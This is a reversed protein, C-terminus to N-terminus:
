ALYRRVLWYGVIFFVAEIAIGWPREGWQIQQHFKTLPTSPPRWGRREYLFYRYPWELDPSVALMAAVLTTPATFNITLILLVLGALDLGEAIYFLRHRFMEGYGQGPYGFHPLADLAFHSGFALPLALIPQHVALAIASGVLVHNSVTM